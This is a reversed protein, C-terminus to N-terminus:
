DSSAAAKTESTSSGHDHSHGGDSHDHGHDSGSGGENGGVLGAHSSRKSDTVYWGRGKFIVSPVVLTRKAEAQCNPCTAVSEADWGQRLEFRNQCSGCVYTYIPM